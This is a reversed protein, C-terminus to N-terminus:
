QYRSHTSLTGGTNNISTPRSRDIARMGNDYLTDVSAVISEGLAQEELVRYLRAGASLRSENGPSNSRTDKEKKPRRQVDDQILETKKDRLKKPSGRNTPSGHNSALSERRSNDVSSGGSRPQVAADDDDLSYHTHKRLWARRKSGGPSPRTTILAPKDDVNKVEENDFLNADLDDLAVYVNTRLM